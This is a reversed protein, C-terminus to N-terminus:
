WTVVPIRRTVYPKFFAPLQRFFNTLLRIRDNQEVLYFFGMLVYIIDQQLYHVFSTQRVFIYPNDTGKFAGVKSGSRIGVIAKGM